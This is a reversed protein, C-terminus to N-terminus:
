RFAFWDVRQASGGSGEQLLELGKVGGDRQYWPDQCLATFAQRADALSGFSGVPVIGWSDHIHISFPM